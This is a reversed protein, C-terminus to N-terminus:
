SADEGPGMGQTMEDANEESPEPDREPPATTEDDGRREQETQDPPGEPEPTAEVEDPEPTQTESM